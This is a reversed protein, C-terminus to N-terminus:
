VKYTQVLTFLFPGFQQKLSSNNQHSGQYMKTYLGLLDEV